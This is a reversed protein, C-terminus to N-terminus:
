SKKKRFVLLKSIFYNLIVVLVAAAIKVIYENFGLWTFFVYKTDITMGGVTVTDLNLVTSFLLPHALGGSAAM